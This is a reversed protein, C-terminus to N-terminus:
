FPEMDLNRRCPMGFLVDGGPCMGKRSDVHGQGFLGAKIVAPRLSIGACLDEMTGSKVDNVLPEESNTGTCDKKDSSEALWEFSDRIRKHPSQGAEKCKDKRGLSLDLYEAEKCADYSPLGSSVSSKGPFIDSDDKPKEAANWKNCFSNPLVVDGQLAALANSSDDCSFLPLSSTRELEGAPTQKFSLGSSASGCRASNRADFSTGGVLRHLDNGQVVEESSEALGKSLIAVDKKSLSNVYEELNSYPESETFGKSHRLKDLWTFQSRSGSDVRCIGGGVQGLGSGENLDEGICGEGNDVTQGENGPKEKVRRFSHVLEQEQGRPGPNPGTSDEGTNGRPQQKRIRM